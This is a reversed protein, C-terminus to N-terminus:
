FVFLIEFLQLSREPSAPHSASTNTCVLAYSEIEKLFSSKMISIEPSFSNHSEYSTTM